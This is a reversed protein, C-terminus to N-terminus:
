AMTGKGRFDPCIRGNCCMKMSLALAEHLPSSCNSIGRLALLDWPRQGSDLRFIIKEFHGVIGILEAHRRRFWSGFTGRDLNEYRGYALGIEAQRRLESREEIEAMLAHGFVLYEWGFFEEFAARLAPGRLYQLVRKQPHNDVQRLLDLGTKTLHAFQHRLTRYIDQALAFEFTWVRDAARVQHIFNFVQVNDVVPSFDADPNQHWLPLAALVQQKVFAYVPIGKARAALYELNTISKASGPDVSGYRGGIILVLIDADREVRRKCNEITEVSPDVPFSSHESLLPEFALEEILFDSLDARVQKLDYFTSSIMVKPPGSM